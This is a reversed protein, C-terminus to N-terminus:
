NTPEIMFRGNAEVVVAGTDARLARGSLDALRGRRRVLSGELEVPVGIPPKDRYRVEARATFCREGRLFLWNAMVDDLLSFLLGGHTVNDYGIHAPEPLWTARCLDGDLRFQVKLGAANGPGCVFCQNAESNVLAAPDIESM